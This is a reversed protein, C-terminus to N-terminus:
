SRTRKYGNFEFRDLRVRNGPFAINGNLTVCGITMVLPVNPDPAAFEAFFGDYVVTQGNRSILLEDASRDFEVTIRGSTSTIASTDSDVVVGDTLKMWGLFLGSSRRVVGVCLVTGTDPFVGSPTLGIGQFVEKDGTANNVLVVSDIEILFDRRMNIGWPRMELGAFSLQGTSGDAAFQLRHNVEEVSVGGGSRVEWIGGISNNNFNDTYLFKEIDDDHNPALGALVTMACISAVLTGGYTLKEPIM